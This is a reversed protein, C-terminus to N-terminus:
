RDGVGRREHPQADVTGLEVLADALRAATEGLQEALVLVSDLALEAARRPTSPAAVATTALLDVLARLERMQGAIDHRSPRDTATLDSM